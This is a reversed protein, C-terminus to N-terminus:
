FIPPHKDDDDTEEYRKPDLYHVGAKKNWWDKFAIASLGSFRMDGEDSSSDFSIWVDNENDFYVSQIKAPQFARAGIQVFITGKM